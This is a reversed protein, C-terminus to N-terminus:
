FICCTRLPRPAPVSRACHLSAVKNATELSFHSGNHGDGHRPIIFFVTTFQKKAQKNFFQVDVLFAYMGYRHFLRPKLLLAGCFHRAINIVSTFLVSTVGRLKSCTINIPKLTAKSRRSLILATSMSTLTVTEISMNSRRTAIRCSFLIVMSSSAQSEGKVYM